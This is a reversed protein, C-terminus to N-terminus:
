GKETMERLSKKQCNELSEGELDHGNYGNHIIFYINHIIVPIHM